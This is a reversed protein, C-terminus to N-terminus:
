ANLELRTNIECFHEWHHEVMFRFYQRPTNDYSKHVIPQTRKAESLSRLHEFEKERVYEMRDLLEPLPVDEVNGPGFVGDIKGFVRVYHYEAGYIHELIRRISRGPEPKENLERESLGDIMALLDARMWTLRQIYTEVDQTSVPQRDPEFILAPNMLGDTNHVAIEMEVEQDVDVAEGHRKLFRLYDRIAEPTAALAEETTPGNTTCGLLELVRVETKMRKPGSQLYLQYVSM